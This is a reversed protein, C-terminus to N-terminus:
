LSVNPASLFSCSSSVLCLALVSCACVNRTRAISDYCRFGHARIAFGGLLACNPPVGATGWTVDPYTYYHPMRRRVSVCVSMYMERRRRSVRFTVLCLAFVLVRQCEANPTIKGHYRFEHV